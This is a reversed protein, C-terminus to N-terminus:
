ATVRKPKPREDVLDALRELRDIQDYAYKRIWEELEHLRKPQLTYVRQQAKTTVLVLGSDRLVKLHRSVGPQTLRPFQAAINGANRPGRLLLDLIARRTPDRIALFVDGQPPM